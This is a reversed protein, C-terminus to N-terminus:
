LKVSFQELKEIQVQIKAKMKVKDKYTLLLNQLGQKTIDIYKKLYDLYFEDEDAHATRLEQELEAIRKQIFKFTIKKTEKYYTRWFRTLWLQVINNSKYITTQGDNVGLKDGPKLEGIVRLYVFLEEKEM